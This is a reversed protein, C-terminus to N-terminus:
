SPTTTAPRCPPCRTSASANTPATHGEYAPGFGATAPIGLGALYNGINSPGAVRPEPRLGVRTAGDLLAEVLTSTTPLRFPPWDTVVDFATPRTDPRAAELDTIAARIVAEAAAATFDPTLRVDIGLRCADPTVSFGEGGRIETVTLKPPLPFERPGPGPLPAANLRTV